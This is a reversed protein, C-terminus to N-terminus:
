LPFILYICPIQHCNLNTKMYLLEESFYFGKSFSEINTSFRDKIRFYFILFSTMKKKFKSKGKRM